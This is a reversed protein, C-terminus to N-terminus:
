FTYPVVSQSDVVQIALGRSEFVRNSEVIVNLYTIYM